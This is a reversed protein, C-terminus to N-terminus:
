HARLRAPAAQDLKVTAVTRRAPKGPYVLTLEVEAEGPTAHIPVDIGSPAGAAGYRIDHRALVHGGRRIVVDLENIEGHFVATLDLSVMLDRPRRLQSWLLLGGALAAIFLIRAVVGGRDPM